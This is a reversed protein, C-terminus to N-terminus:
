ASSGTTTATPSWSVAMGRSFPTSSGTPIFFPLRPPHDISWAGLDAVVTVHDRGDIRYLGVVSSGGVDPGVLTVLAYATHRVFAVDM